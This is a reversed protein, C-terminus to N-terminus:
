LPELARTREGGGAFLSDVHGFNFFAVGAVFIVGICLAARAAFNPVLMMIGAAVLVIGFAYAFPPASPTWDQALVLGGVFRGFLLYLVGLGFMALALFARGIAFLRRDDLM